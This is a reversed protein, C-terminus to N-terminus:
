LRVVELGIGNWRRLIEVHDACLPRGLLVQEKRIEDATAGRTPVIMLQPTLLGSDLVSLIRAVAIM